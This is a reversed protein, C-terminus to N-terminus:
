SGQNIRQFGLNMCWSQLRGENEEKVTIEWQDDPLPLISFWQSAQVLLSSMVMTQSEGRLTITSTRLDSSVYM